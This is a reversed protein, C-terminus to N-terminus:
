FLVFVSSIFIVPGAISHAKPGKTGTTGFCLLPLTSGHGVCVITSSTFITACNAVRYQSCATTCCCCSSWSCSAGSSPLLHGRPRPTATAQQPTTETAVGKATHPPGPPGAPAWGTFVRAMIEPSILNHRPIPGEGVGPALVIHRSPSALPLAEAAPYSQERATQPPVELLCWLTPRSSGAPRGPCWQSATLPDGIPWFLRPPLQLQCHYTSRDRSSLRPEPGWSWWPRSSCLLVWWCQTIQNHTTHQKGLAWPCQGKSVPLWVLTLAPTSSTFTGVSPLPVPARHHQGKLVRWWDWLSTCRTVLTSLPYVGPYPPSPSCVSGPEAWAKAPPLTFAYYFGKNDNYM